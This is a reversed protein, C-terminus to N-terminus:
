FPILRIAQVDGVNILRGTGDFFATVQVSDTTFSNNFGLEENPIAISVHTASEFRLPYKNDFAWKTFARKSTGVPNDKMVFASTEQRWDPGKFKTWLCVSMTLIVGLM